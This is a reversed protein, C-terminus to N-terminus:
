FSRLHSGLVEEKGPARGRRGDGAGKGERHIPGPVAGRGGRPRVAPGSGPVRGRVPVRGRAHADRPRETQGWGQPCQRRDPRTTCAAQM